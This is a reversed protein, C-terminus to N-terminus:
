GFYKQMKKDLLEEFNSIHSLFLNRQKEVEVIFNNFKEQENLPPLPIKFESYKAANLNPQAAGVQSSKVFEKYNNTKTCQYLYKPSIKNADPILRILYGAFICKGMKENFLLTKGVTAGTRAFLLDNNNLLCSDEIFSPSKYDDNLTNDDNIDTIRLYRIEGDYEIAGAGSGYELKKMAVDSMMTDWPYEGFMEDFKAEVLEDLLKLQQRSDEIADTLRDLVDVIHKQRDPSPVNIQVAKLFSLNINNQAVGRSMEKVSSKLSLLNYYLYNKDVNENFIELGVIAQNTCCDLEIQAVEGVTAFITYILTGKKLLKTSSNDLGEQTIFESTSDVSRGKIDTIKLWPIDGNWYEQKTRSPTGGAKFLCIDSLPLKNM